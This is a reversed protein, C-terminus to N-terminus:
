RYIYTPSALLFNVEEEAQNQVESRELHDVEMPELATHHQISGRQSNQPFFPKNSQNQNNYRGFTNPNNHQNNSYFNNRFNGSNRPNPSRLQGSSSKFNNSFSNNPIHQRQQNNQPSNNKHKEVFNKERLLNNVELYSFAETLNKIDKNRILASLYPEVNDLFTKLIVDENCSPSFEAPKQPDFHYKENLKNLIHLLNNYFNRVNTNRLHFAQHYLQHYSEQVTYRRVLAAKVANWTRNPGIANVVHAAEGQIKDFVVQRGIFERLNADTTLGFLYEVQTIFNYLTNSDDGRFDKLRAVQKLLESQDLKFAM